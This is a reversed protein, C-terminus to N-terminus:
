APTDANGDHMPIRGDKELILPSYWRRFAIALVTALHGMEIFFMHEEDVKRFVGNERRQHHQKLLCLHKKSNHMAKDWEDCIRNECTKRRGSYGITRTKPIVELYTSNFANRRNREEWGRRTVQRLSFNMSTHVEQPTMSRHFFV